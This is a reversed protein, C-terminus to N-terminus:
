QIYYNAAINCFVFCLMALNIVVIICLGGGPAFLKAYTTGTVEVNEDEEDAM